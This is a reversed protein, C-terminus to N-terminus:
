IKQMRRNWVQDLMLQNYLVFLVALIKVANRITRYLFEILPDTHHSPLEEYHKNDSLADKDM